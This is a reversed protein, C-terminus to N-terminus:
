RARTHTQDCHRAARALADTDTESARVTVAVVCCPRGTIKTPYHRVAVLAGAADREVGYVDPALDALGGPQSTTSNTRRRM